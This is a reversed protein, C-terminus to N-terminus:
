TMGMKIEQELCSSALSSRGAAARSLTRRAKCANLKNPIRRGFTFERKTYVCRMDSALLMQGKCGRALLAACDAANASEVRKRVASAQLIM